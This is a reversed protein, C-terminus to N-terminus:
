TRNVRAPPVFRGEACAALDAEPVVSVEVLDEGYNFVQTHGVIVTAHDTLNITQSLGPATM